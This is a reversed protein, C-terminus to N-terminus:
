SQLWAELYIFDFEDGLFRDEQVGPLTKPTDWRLGVQVIVHKATRYSIKPRRVYRLPMTSRTCNAYRVVKLMTTCIM